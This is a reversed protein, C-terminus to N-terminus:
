RQTYIIIRSKPNPIQSPSLSPHSVLSAMKLSEGTIEKSESAVGTQEKEQPQPAESEKKITMITLTAGSFEDELAKEPERTRQKVADHGESLKVGNGEEVVVVKEETDDSQQKELLHRQEGDNATTTSLQPLVEGLQGPPCPSQSPDDLASTVGPIQTVGGDEGDVSVMENSSFESKIVESMDDSHNNGEGRQPSKSKKRRRRRRQSGSSRCGSPSTGDDVRLEPSDLPDLKKPLLPSSFLPDTQQSDPKMIEGSLEERPSHM